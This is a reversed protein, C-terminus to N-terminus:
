SYQILLERVSQPIDTRQGLEKTTVRTKSCFLNPNAGLELANQVLPELYGEEWKYLLIWDLLRYGNALPRNIDFDPAFLILANIMKPTPHRILLDLARVRQQTQQHINAGHSLLISFVEHNKMIIARHIPYYGRDDHFNLNPNGRLLAGIVQPKFTRDDEMRSLALSLPSQKQTLKERNMEQMNPRSTLLADILEPDNRGVAQVLYPPEGRPPILQPRGKRLLRLLADRNEGSWAIQLPTKGEDNRVNVPAGKAILKEALDPDDLAKHLPTNGKGDPTYVDVKPHALIEQCIERKKLACMLPTRNLMDTANLPPNQKLIREVSETLNLEIARHLPTRGQYDTQKLNPRANLVANIVEQNQTELAAHLPSQGQWLLHKQRKLLDTVPIVHQEAIENFLEPKKEISLKPPQIEELSKVFKLINKDDFETAADKLRKAYHEPLKLQNRKVKWAIGYGQFFLKLGYWFASFGEKKEIMRWHRLQIKYLSIPLRTVPTEKIQRVKTRLNHRIIILLKKKLKAQDESLDQPLAKLLTHAQDMRGAERWHKRTAEGKRLKAFQLMTIPPKSPIPNTVSSKLFERAESSINDLNIPM